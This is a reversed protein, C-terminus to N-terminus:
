AGEEVQLAYLHQFARLTGQVASVRRRARDVHEGYLGFEVLEASVADSGEAIVPRLRDLACHVHREAFIDRQAKRAIVDIM